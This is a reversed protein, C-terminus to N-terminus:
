KFVQSITLIAPPESIKPQHKPFPPSCRVLAHMGHLSQHCCNQFNCELAASLVGNKVEAFNELLIHDVRQRKNKAQRRKSLSTPPLRPSCCLSYRQHKHLTPLISPFLPLPSLDSAKVLSKRSSSYRNLKGATFGPAPSLALPRSRSPPLSLCNGTRGGGNLPASSVSSSSLPPLPTPRESCLRSVLSLFQFADSSRFSYAILVSFIVNRQLAFSNSLQLKLHREFRHNSRTCIHLDIM